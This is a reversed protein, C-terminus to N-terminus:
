SQRCAPVRDTASRSATGRCGSQPSYCDELVALVIMSSAFFRLRREHAKPPPTPVTSGMSLGLFPLRGRSLILWSRAMSTAARRFLFFHAWPEALSPLQFSRGPSGHLSLVRLLLTVTWVFAVVLFVGKDRWAESPDPLAHVPRTSNGLPASTYCAKFGSCFLLTRVVTVTHQQHNPFSLPLRAALNQTSPARKIGYSVWFPGQFASVLM